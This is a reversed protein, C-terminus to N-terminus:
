LPIAATLIRNESRKQVRALEIEAICLVTTTTPMGGQRKRQLPEEVNWYESSM